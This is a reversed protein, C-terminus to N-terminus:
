PNTEADSLERMPRPPELAVEIRRNIRRSDEDTEPVLPRTDALGTAKLRQASIGLGILQRVAASARASSLEWNTPYTQKINSVVPRSDSHGLVTITHDPFSDIARAVEALVSEARDNLVASGSEFLIREPLKIVTRGSDFRQVQSQRDDGLTTLQQELETLAAQERNLRDELSDVQNQRNRLASHAQEINTAYLSLQRRLATNQTEMRALRAALQDREETLQAQTDELEGIRALREQAAELRAQTDQQTAVLNQYDASVSALETRLEGAIQALDGQQQNFADISTRLTQSRQRLQSLQDQLSTNDDNLQDISAQAQSLEQTLRDNELWLMGAVVVALFALTTMFITVFPTPRTSM